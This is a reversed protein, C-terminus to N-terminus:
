PCATALASLAQGIGQLSYTDKTQTGRASTAQVTLTSGKKMADILKLEETADSVYARDDNAFLQFSDTGVMVAVPADSKIPYGLKVSIESKVGEKPWASVYLVVKSRNASAPEKIKPQSAAFCIKPGEGANQHVIWDGFRGTEHATTEAPQAVIPQGPAFLALGVILLFLAHRPMM